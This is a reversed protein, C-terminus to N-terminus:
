NACEPTSNGFNGTNGRALNRPMWNETGSLEQVLSDFAARVNTEVAVYWDNVPNRHDETIYDLFKWYAM